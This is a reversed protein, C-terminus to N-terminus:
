TRDDLNHCPSLNTPAQEHGPKMKHQASFFLDLEDRRVEVLDGSLQGVAEVGLEPDRIPTRLPPHHWLYELIPIRTATIATARMDSGAPM